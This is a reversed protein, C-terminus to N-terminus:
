AVISNQSRTTPYTLHTEVLSPSAPLRQRRTCSLCCMQMVHWLASNEVLIHGINEDKARQLLKNFVERGDTPLSGSIVEDISDVLNFGRREAIDKCASFQRKMGAKEKNTRTSIRCYALAKPKKKLKKDKINLKNPTGKAKKAGNMVEKKTLNKKAM